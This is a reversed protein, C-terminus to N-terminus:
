PEPTLDKWNIKVDAISSSSGPQGKRSSGAAERLVNWVSALASAVWGLKRPERLLAGAARLAAAMNASASLMEPVALSGRRRREPLARSASRAVNRM